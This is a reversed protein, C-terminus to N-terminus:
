KVKSPSKGAPADIHINELVELIIDTEDEITPTGATRAEDVLPRAGTEVELSPEAEVEMPKIDAIDNTPPNALPQAPHVSPPQLIELPHDTTDPLEFRQFFSM